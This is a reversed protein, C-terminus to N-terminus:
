VLGAPKLTAVASAAMGEERGTFGLGETTTAALNVQAPSLGLARALNQTMAPAFPAIKPRQAMLVLSAGAPALGKEGLAAVVRRLLDLSNAGQYAPDTDPFMRGIDGLGAAALLADMLAHTLVDADSHGLLGRDFPVAVGGLILPRGPALRHVDFGQGLMPAPFPALGVSLVLDEPTTIKLNTKEGPVIKVKGGAREVLGAEDTAQWGERRARDLADALLDARFAQPTQALWLRSRDLTACVMGDEGAHKVTDSAPAACVAAGTEGAADLTRRFLGPSAFPRVGDHVLLWEAGMRRAQAVGNAVSDQREAGGPVVAAVKRIQYGEVFTKIIYDKQDLPVVLVVESVAEAADLAMLTRSLIPAGNLQLLQKAKAAGMRRGIGAAPVVAMAHKPM